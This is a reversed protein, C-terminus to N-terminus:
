DPLIVEITGDYDTDISIGPKYEGTLFDSKLITIKDAYVSTKKGSVENIINGNEDFIQMAIEYTSGDKDALIYDFSVMAETENILKFNTSYSLGTIADNLKGEYADFGNPAFGSYIVKATFSNIDGRTGDESRSMEKSLFNNVDNSILILKGVPRKMMMNITMSINWDGTYETLDIDKSDYFCDKEAKNAVYEGNYKVKRLTEDTYYYLDSPSATQVYDSWVVIKYKTANLKLSIDTKEENLFNNLLLNKRAVPKVMDNFKYVEVIVRQKVIGDFTEPDTMDSVETSLSIELNLNILTPDVANEDPFETITNCSACIMSVVLVIWKCIISHKINQRMIM